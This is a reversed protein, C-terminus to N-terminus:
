NPFIKELKLGIIFFALCNLDMERPFSRYSTVLQKVLHILIYISTSNNM